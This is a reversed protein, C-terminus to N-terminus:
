GVLIGQREDTQYCHQSSGTALRPRKWSLQLSLEGDESWPFNATGTESNAATVPPTTTKAM